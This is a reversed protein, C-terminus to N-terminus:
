LFYESTRQRLTRTTSKDEGVLVHTIGEELDDTLRAGAFRATDCAQKMRDNALQQDSYLLLGEFMWGRLEGLENGHEELEAKFDRASFSQEFKAPM